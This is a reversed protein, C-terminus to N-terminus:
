SAQAFAVPAYTSVTNRTRKSAYLAADAASILGEIRAGKGPTMSVLGISVTVVGCPAENHPIALDEVASRVAEAVALAEEDGAGHLFLAFEEGGYRAARSSGETATLLLGGVTRLCADGALHGYADNFRKFHDVDIMLLAVPEQQAGARQWISALETDFARRNSLGTLSDISALERFRDSESRLSHERMALRAAMSDLSRTLPLFETAWQQHSTSVTLDGRGIREAKGALVRIPRLIAREGFLWAGLVVLLAGLVLQMYGLQMEREIRSLITREEIGVLLHADAGAISQFGWVRRTGDFGAATITGEGRAQVDKMLPDNALDRGVWAEPHPHRALVVGGRDVLLAVSGSRQQVTAALQGIWQLDVLGAVVYEIEGSAGRKGIAAVIGPTAESRPQLFGSIVLGGGKLANQFYPRDAVDVGITRPNAACIFRGSRDIIAASKMWSVDSAVNGLLRNCGPSPLAVHELAHSVAQLTAHASAVADHQKDAGARALRMAQVGADALQEARNSELIRVRDVFLPAVAIIALIAIRFRLSSVSALTALCRSRMIRLMKRGRFGAPYIYVPSRQVTRQAMQFVKIQEAQDVKQM